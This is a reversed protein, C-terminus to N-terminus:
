EDAVEKITVKCITPSTLTPVLQYARGGVAELEIVSLGSFRISGDATGWCRASLSHPGPSVAVETVREKLDVGDVKVIAVNAHIGIPLLLSKLFSSKVGRILVEDESLPPVQLNRGGSSCASLLLLVVVLTVKWYVDSACWQAGLCLVSASPM